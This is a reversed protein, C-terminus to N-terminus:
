EAAMAEQGQLQRTPAPAFYAIIMILLGVGIFSVIRAITESQALDVIFLKLVTMALITVGAGWMVTRQRRSGVFMLILALVSWCIAFATQLLASGFLDNATFPVGTMHHVARAIILNMAVFACAGWLVRLVEADAIRRIWRLGVGVLLLQSIDLPNLIPLYTFPASSGPNDALAVFAGFLAFLALPGVGLTRYVKAQQAFILPLREILENVLFIILTIVLLRTAVIWSGDAWVTGTVAQTVSWDIFFTSIFAFLWLTGAHFFAWLQQATTNDTEWRVLAWYQVILALPWAYWGGGAFHHDTEALQALSLLMLTPLLLGWPSM